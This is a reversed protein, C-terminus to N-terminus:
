KSYKSIDFTNHNMLPNMLLTEFYTTVNSYFIIIYIINYLACQGDIKLVLPLQKSSFCAAVTPQRQVASYNNIKFLGQAWRWM